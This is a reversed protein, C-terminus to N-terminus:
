RGNGYEVLIEGDARILVDVDDDGSKDKHGDIRAHSWEKLGEDDGRDTRFMKDVVM